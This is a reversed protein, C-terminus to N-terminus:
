LRDICKYNIHSSGHHEDIENKGLSEGGKGVATKTWMEMQTLFLDDETIWSLITKTAIIVERQKM